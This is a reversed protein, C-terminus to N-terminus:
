LFTRRVIVFRLPFVRENEVSVMQTSLKICSPTMYSFIADPSVTDVLTAISFFDSSFVPTRLILSIVMPNLATSETDKSSNLMPCGSYIM